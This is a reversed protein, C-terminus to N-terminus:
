RRCRCSYADPDKLLDISGVPLGLVAVSDMNAYKFVIPKISDGAKVTQSANDLLKVSTEVHKHKVTITGTVVASTDPGMVTISYTYTSDKLSEDVTGIIKLINSDDDESFELGLPLSSLEMSMGGVRRFYYVIPEISNGATVTQEDAGEVLEFIMPLPKHKVKITATASSDNDTGFVKVTVSYDGDDVNEDVAGALTFTQTNEDKLLKISGVPVEGSVAVSDINAYKFVVPKISDGAKVTQTANSEVVVSTEMPKHKVIISGTVVSDSEEGTVTISYTYTGDKLGEDLTGSITYTMAKSDLSHELGRALKSIHTRTINDFRYVIPEITEGATATQPVNGSTLEFVISKSDTNSSAAIKIEHTSVFTYYSNDPDQITLGIVGDQIRSPLVGDEMWEKYDDNGAGGVGYGDDAIIKKGGMAASAAAWTVENNNDNRIRISDGQTRGGSTFLYDIKSKDFHSYWTKLNENLWPSIDVAIKANPLASKITKVIDNFYSGALSEDPIGGNEQKFRDDREDGSVSYQFFDPEILWITTGVAGDKEFDKAVGQAYSSYRAIIEDWHDRIMQAGHTCHNPSGVDCDSLYSGNVKQDKDFEAIVYAYFVPTLDHEKCAKVMAGEWYENYKENDGVWIALHSLKKNSVDLGSKWQQGFNFHSEDFAAFAVSTLFLALAISLIKRM